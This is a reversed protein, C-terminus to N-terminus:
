EKYDNVWVKKDDMTSLIVDVYCGDSYSIKGHDYEITGKDELYCSSDTNLCWQVFSIFINNFKRLFCNHLMMLHVM